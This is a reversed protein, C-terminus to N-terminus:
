FRFGVGFSFLHHDFRVPTAPFFETEPNSFFSVSSAEFPGVQTRGVIHKQARIQIFFKSYPPLSIAAELLLGVKTKRFSPQEGEIKIKYFSPGIGLHIGSSNAAITPAVMTLSIRLNMHVPSSYGRVNGTDNQSYVMGIYWPKYKLIRYHLTAIRTDGSNSTPYKTDSCILFCSDDYDDFGIDIMAQKLDVTPGARSISYSNVTLLFRRKLHNPQSNEWMTRRHSKRSSLIYTDKGGSGDEKLNHKIVISVVDKTAVKRIVNLQNELWFTTDSTVQVARGKRESGNTLILIADRDVLKENLEAYTSKSDDAIWNVRACGLSLIALLLVIEPGVKM